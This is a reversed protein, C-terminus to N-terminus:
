GICTIGVRGGIPPLDSDTMVNEVSFMVVELEPVEFYKKMSKNVGKMNENVSARRPPMPIICLVTVLQQM